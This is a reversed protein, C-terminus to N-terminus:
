CKKTKKNITHMYKETRAYIKRHTKLAGVSYISNKQSNQNKGHTYQWACFFWVIIRHTKTNKQRPIKFSVSFDYNKQAYRFFRVSFIKVCLGIRTELPPVGDMNTIWTMKSLSVTKLAYSQSKIKIVINIPFHYIYIKIFTYKLVFRNM